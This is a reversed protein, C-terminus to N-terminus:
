ISSLKTNIEKLKENLRRITDTRQKMLQAAQHSHGNAEADAIRDNLQAIEANLLEVPAYISTSNGM